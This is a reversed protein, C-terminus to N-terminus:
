EEGSAKEATEVDFRNGVADDEELRVSFVIDADDTHESSTGLMGAYWFVVNEDTGYGHARLIWDKLGKLYPHVCGVFQAVTIPTGVSNEIVLSLPKSV